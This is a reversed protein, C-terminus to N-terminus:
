GVEREAVDGDSVQQDTTLPFSLRILAGGGVGDELLMRGGHEEIIKKVIALGLGTGKERNTVYPEVLRERGEAPLGIGNDQILLQVTNGETELSISIVGVGLNPVADGARADIAEHANQLLNTLLRNLHRSDGRISVTTDPLAVAYEIDRHAFEEAFMAARVVERLDVDKMEAAPMRAFASFEDVM